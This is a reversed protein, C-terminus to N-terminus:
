AEAVEERGKIFALNFHTLLNGVRTNTQEKKQKVSQTNFNAMLVGTKQTEQSVEAWTYSIDTNIGIDALDDAMAQFQPIDEGIQNLLCENTVAAVNIKNYLRQKLTAMVANLNTMYEYENYAPSIESIGSFVDQLKDRSAFLNTDHQTQKHYNGLKYVNFKKDFETRDQGAFIINM